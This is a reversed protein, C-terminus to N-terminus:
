RQQLSLSLSHKEPKNTIKTKKVSFTFWYRKSFFQQMKEFLIAVTDVSTGPVYSINEKLKLHEIYALIIIAISKNQNIIWIITDV